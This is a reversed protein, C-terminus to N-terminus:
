ANVLDSWPGTMDKTPRDPAPGPGCTAFRRGFCTLREAQRGGERGGERRPLPLRSGRESPRRRMMQGVSTKSTTVRDSRIPTLHRRITCMSDFDCRSEHNIIGEGKGGDEKEYKRFDEEDEGRFGFGLGDTRGLSSVDMLKPGSKFWEMLKSEKGEGEGGGVEVGDAM